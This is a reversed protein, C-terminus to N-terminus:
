LCTEPLSRAIDMAALIETERAHATACLDPDAGPERAALELCRSATDLQGRAILASTLLLQDRLMLPRMHKRWYEIFVDAARGRDKAILLRIAHEYDSAGQSSCSFRHQARARELRADIHDPDSNL